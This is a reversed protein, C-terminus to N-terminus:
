EDEEELEKKLKSWRHRKQDLSKMLNLIREREAKKTEEILNEIFETMREREAKLIEEEVYDMLERVETLDTMLRKKDGTINKAIDKAKITWIGNLLKEKIKDKM